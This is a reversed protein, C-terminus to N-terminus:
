ISVRAHSKIRFSGNLNFEFGIGLRVHVQGVWSGSWVRYLGLRPELVASGLFRFAMEAQAQVLGALWRPKSRRAAWSAVRM